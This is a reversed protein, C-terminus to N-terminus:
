REREEQRQGRHLRRPFRFISRALGTANTRTLNPQLHQGGTKTNGELRSSAWSLDVLLRSLIDRAYTGAPRESDSTRGMEHLQHRLTEPLYFTEGPVYAELFDRQYGVPRRHMLPRRMQDRIAAGEPSLPVYLATETPATTSPTAPGIAQVARDSAPKYVLAVSEGETTLRREVVLRQLRRQLTRRNPKTGQRRTMELEIDAIGIGVPHAGVVSAILELEQQLTTRPMAFLEEPSETASQRAQAVFRSLLTDRLHDRKM